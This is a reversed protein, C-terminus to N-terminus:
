NWIKGRASGLRPDLPVVSEHKSLAALCQLLERPRYKSRNRGLFQESRRTQSLKLRYQVVTHHREFLMDKPQGPHPHM